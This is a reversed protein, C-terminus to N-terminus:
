LAALCEEVLERGRLANLWRAPIADSGYHLGALGGAICATTDTDRGLQIARRVCPEYGQTTLLCDLASWLSDVVYGSGRKEHKAAARILRLEAAYGDQLETHREVHALLLEEARMVSFAKPHGELLHWAVLAYLACCLQSRLHGHSVVGQYMALEILQPVSTAVFVVPMCRMLAGNGNDQEGAPGAEHAAAGRRLM